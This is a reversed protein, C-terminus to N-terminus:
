ALINGCRRAEESCLDVFVYEVMKHVIWMYKKGIVYGYRIARSDEVRGVADCPASIIKPDSGVIQDASEHM